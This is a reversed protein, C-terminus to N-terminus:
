LGLEIQGRRVLVLRGETIGIITSCLGAPTEGGDLIYDLRDPFMALVEPATRAPALNSINASTATIPRGAMRVLERATPHPSVRVGVTGTNATVMGALEKRAPFLLTLPGPWFKAMLELYPQPIEAAVEALQEQREILLLLPKEAPRRKVQFLRAVASECFPDVALGYYTETPFAVIGGQRLIIAAQAVSTGVVTNHRYDSM